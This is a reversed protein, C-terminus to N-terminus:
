TPRLVVPPPPQAEPGTSVPRGRTSANARNRPSARRRRSAVRQDRRQLATPTLAIATVGEEEMLPGSGLKPPPGRPTGPASRRPRPGWWRRPRRRRRGQPPRGARPARAPRTGPGRGGGGGPQASVGARCPAPAVAGVRRASGHSPRERAEPPPGRPTRPASRRPRPGWRPRSVAPAPPAAPGTAAPRGTTSANAEPQASIGARYPAPAAGVRRAGGHSPRERAEPAAREDNQPDVESTAAGVRAEVGGVGPIRLASRRPRPGWRPRSVVSAPHGPRRSSICFGTHVQGASKV